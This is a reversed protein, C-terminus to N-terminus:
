LLRVPDMKHCCNKQFIILKHPFGKTACIKCCQISDNDLTEPGGRATTIDIYFSFIKDRSEKYNNYSFSM